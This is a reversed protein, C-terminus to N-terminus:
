RNTIEDWGHFYPGLVTKSMDLNYNETLWEKTVQTTQKYNFGMDERLFNWITYYDIHSVDDKKDYDFYVKRDNDTYFNVNEYREDTVPTLDGYRKTLYKKATKKKVLFDRDENESILKRQRETIIIKM